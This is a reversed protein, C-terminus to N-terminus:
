AVHKSNFVDRLSDIQESTALDPENVWEVFHFGWKAGLKTWASPYIPHVSDDKLWRIIRQRLTLVFLDVARYEGYKNVKPKITLAKYVYFLEQATYLRLKDRYQIPFKNLLTVYKPCENVKITNM